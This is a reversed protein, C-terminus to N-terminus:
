EAPFTTMFGAAANFGDGVQKWIEVDDDDTALKAVQLVTVGDSLGFAGAVHLTGRHVHYDSAQANFGNAPEEWGTPTADTNRAVRKTTVTGMTLFTGCVFIKGSFFKSDFVIATTLDKNLTLFNALDWRTVDSVFDGNDDIFSFNGGVVLKTASEVALAEIQGSGGGFDGPDTINTGDYKAILDFAGDGGVNSFTGGIYLESNFVRMVRTSVLSETGIATFVTGDWKVVGSASVGNVSSFDGGIYLDGQFIEMSRVTANAGTGFPNSWKSGNWLALRGVAITSDGATTFAGGVILDGKFDIMTIATANVGGDALPEWSDGVLVAIRNITKTAANNQTFPGVVYLDGLAGRADFGTDIFGQVNSQNFSDFSSSFFM